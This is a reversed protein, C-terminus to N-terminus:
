SKANPSLGRDATRPLIGHVKAHGTQDRERSENGAQEAASRYLRKSVIKGHLLLGVARAL